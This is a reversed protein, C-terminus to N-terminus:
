GKNMESHKRGYALYVIFGIIFWIGCAVWTLVSLQSILFLCLLFSLIPLVPFFPVKFGGSPINKNKRLYVVGISVITFAVLTGMNVLEALKSLPVFGACFAVLLAFIWTNKVPTKFKPSLEAMSKPLLGDRGLAYLLRTGGYSMVLIVTMMGVVAGLSIIGAIWDQHVMQMVYSVPDSVNLAHYPVIGTLVMSVAVYLVTCILLSGIIGIPMNRQPNKVEEAASSVADFGLYAFFVLAAGSFIGSIGFPLFPEWNTPKVYFVGVGIFLLIVAVKLFVMWTNFRTSEKIGLTLLFATAFIILIAPVNMYTGAAPNFAGSIAQPLVIHFGALLSNLYSSWGTAVAAVALGYELLLAWGVLWAIIEGFVIYGYTYASGTVPVSSAFESYCMGAFACVMAAIIFSFVIGPGAHTAAVTGPLIFIGTGVIAGVGLLILDFAGLTKKLQITGNNQLLEEIKKKRFLTKSM